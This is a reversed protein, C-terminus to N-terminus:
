YKGHKWLIIHHQYDREKLSELLDECCIMELLASPLQVLHGENDSRSVLKVLISLNHHLDTDHGTFTVSENTYHSFRDEPKGDLDSM